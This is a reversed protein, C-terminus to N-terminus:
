YMKSGIPVPKEPTALVVNGDSDEFGLTLTESLYNGIQKPEFNVVGMVLRSMLDDKSYNKTYQGISVKTGVEEDFDITMKYASIRLGETDEVKIIKGVRIDVKEFDSYQITM